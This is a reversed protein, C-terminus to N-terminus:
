RWVNSIIKFWSRLNFINYKLSRFFYIYSLRKAHSCGNLQYKLLYYYGLQHLSSSRVLPYECLIDHYFRLKYSISLISRNIGRENLITMRDEAENQYDVMDEDFLYVDYGLLIIRRYVDSDTGKPLDEAFKGADKFVNCRLLAASGYIFSNKELIHSIINKPKVIGRKYPSKRGVMKVDTTVIGYSKEKDNEFIEVQKTLKYNKSWVDDDGIFALYEGKAYKYGTNSAFQVGKNEKHRVYTVKESYDREMVSQTNDSSCDDVVIIEINPYDQSLVSDITKGVKNARNFTTIIVSVLPQEKM